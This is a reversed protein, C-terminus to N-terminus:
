GAALLPLPAAPVLHLPQGSRVTTQCPIGLGYSAPVLVRRGDRLAVEFRVQSVADDESPPGDAELVVEVFQPQADRRRLEARWWSLTGTPVGTASSLERLTWGEHDRLAFLDRM